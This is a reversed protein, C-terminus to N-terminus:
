TKASRAARQRPMASAPVPVRAAVQGASLPPAYILKLLRKLTKRQASTLAATADMELRAATEEAQAM